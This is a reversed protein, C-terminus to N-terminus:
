LNLEDGHHAFCSIWAGYTELSEYECVTWHHANADRHLTVKTGTVCSSCVKLM